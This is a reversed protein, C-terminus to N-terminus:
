FPGFAILCHVCFDVAIREVPRRVPHFRRGLKPRANPHLALRSGVTVSIGSSLTDSGSIALGLFYLSGLSLMDLITAAFLLAVTKVVPAKRIGFMLWPISGPSLRLNALRVFERFKPREMDFM